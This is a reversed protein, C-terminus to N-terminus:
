PKRGAFPLEDPPVYGREAFRPAIARSQNRGQAANSACGLAERLQSSGKRLFFVRPGGPPIQDTFPPKATLKVTREMANLEDWATYALWAACEDRSAVDKLPAGLGLASAVAPLLTRAVLYAGESTLHVHDHFLTVGPIRDDSSDSNKMAEQADVLALRESKEGSAIQRITDNIGDDARFQLPDCDRARRYHEAAKESLGTALYCRALRFQLDAFTDDLRAAQEYFTIAIQHRGADEAEIGQPYLREWATQQELGLSPRHLSGFPPCDKLNM